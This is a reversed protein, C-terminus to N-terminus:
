IKPLYQASESMRYFVKPSTTNESTTNYDIQQLSQLFNAEIDSQVEKNIKVQDFITMQELLHTMANNLQFISKETLPQQKVYLYKKSAEFLAKQLMRYNPSDKIHDYLNEMIEKIKQLCLEQKQLDIQMKLANVQVQNSFVQNQQAYASNWQELLLLANHFKQEPTIQQSLTFMQQISKPEMLKRM